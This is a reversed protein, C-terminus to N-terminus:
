VTIQLSDKAAGVPADIQIRFPYQPQDDVMRLDKGNWPRREQSQDLNQRSLVAGGSDSLYINQRAVQIYEKELQSYASQIKPYINRQCVLDNKM